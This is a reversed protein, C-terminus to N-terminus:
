YGIRRKITAILGPKYAAIQQIFVPDSAYTTSAMEYISRWKAKYIKKESDSLYTDASLANMLYSMFKLITPKHKPIEYSMMESYPLKKFEELPNNRKAEAEQQHQQLMQVLLFEYEDPDLGKQEAKKRIVKIEFEEIKGDQVAMEMYSKLENDIRSQQENKQKSQRVNQQVTPRMNQEVVSQAIEQIMSQKHRGSTQIARKPKPVTNSVESITDSIKPTAKTADLIADSADAILKKALGRSAVDRFAKGLDFM